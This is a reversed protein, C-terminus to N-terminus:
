SGLVTRELGTWHNALQQTVLSVWVRSVPESSTGTSDIGIHTYLLSKAPVPVEARLRIGIALWHIPKGPAPVVVAPRCLCYVMSHHTSILFSRSSQSSSDKCHSSGESHGPCLFLLSTHWVITTYSTAWKQSLHASYQATIFKVTMMVRFM